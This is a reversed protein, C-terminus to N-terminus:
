TCIQNSSSINQTHIVTIWMYPKYGIENSFVKIFLLITAMVAAHDAIGVGNVCSSLTSVADM